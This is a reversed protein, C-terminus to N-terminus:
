SDAGGVQDRVVYSPKEMSRLHMKALYEGIIGLAFLQVGSFLALSAALFAFGPVSTGDIVFSVLVYGLSAIGVAVAAFGAMSALRLPGVTFGTVITM